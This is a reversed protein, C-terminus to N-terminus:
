KEGPRNIAAESVAKVIKPIDACYFGASNFCGAEVVYLDTDMNPGAQCVDLVFVDAPSWIAAQREAFEIVKEPVDTSTRLAQDIRYRSGSVYKGNVMFCRWESRMRIPEAVVVPADVTVRRSDAQLLMNFWEMLSFHTVVMGPFDKLDSTPRIFFKREPAHDEANLEAITMIRADSNAMAAGWHRLYAQYCFRDASYWGCPKSLKEFMLGTFNTSGYAVVHDVVSAAQFINDSLEQSFPAFVCQQCLHGNDLVSRILINIDQSSGLNTQVLWLLSM